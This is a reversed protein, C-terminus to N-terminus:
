VKIFNINKARDTSVKIAIITNNQDRVMQIFRFQWGNSSFNDKKIPNLTINGMKHHWITLTNDILKLKYITQLEESYFNGVFESLEETTYTITNYKEFADIIKGEILVNMTQTNAITLFEVETDEWEGLQFRNESKAKLVSARGGQDPRSYILSDNRIFINRSYYHETHLYSGELRKTKKRSLKKFKVRTQKIKKKKFFPKLFIDAMKLAEGEAYVSANNSLLLVTIDQNPFRGIYSRYGADGGSHWIRKLGNYIDVFQGLAYKSTEGSNLVNLTNMKDFVVKSGITLNRFNQAWKEFDSITTYIGSAGTYSYNAPAYQFDDQGVEYSYAKNKIIKHFDDMVYSHNMNLPKFINEDLYIAYAVGSVKAIVNALLNFGSNSYGFKSGPIFNLEKQHLTIENIDKQSILSNATFGKMGLLKLDSRLGSSNSALHRLTITTGFDKLEPIYKRIDDDLSLKGEEELLLLAFVTFQKSVSCLNFVTNITIPIEHELNASGYGKHFIINGDKILSIAIGPFEENDYAKYISDVKEGILTSQAHLRYFTLTLIFVFAIPKLPFKM